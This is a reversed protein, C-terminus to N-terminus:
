WQLYSPTTTVVHPLTFDEAAVTLGYPALATSLSQKTLELDDYSEVGETLEFPAKFGMIAAVQEQSWALIDVSRTSINIDNGTDLRVQYVVVQTDAGLRHIRSIAQEHIYARYPADLMIMTDAMVLPVATSLSKYTALLPNLDENTEFERIIGALENNTKGYVALPNFGEATLRGHMTELAEVFSTFVVTKKTTSDCVGRFDVYPVMAVHCEIRKRGLVRGLAEGQIKLHVYKIISRIDKFQQAHWSPLSPILTQLEYRNVRKIEEAVFRPDGSKIVRQLDTHYDAFAAKQAGSKLGDRHLDMCENFLREDDKRRAKYYKAREEIFAKMDRRIATLTFDKGNPITVVMEKFIPESLKVEKKEVKFSVLGLRHRLIDVGKNGDRGFIKRFRQEVDDTFYPDITRLLPISEAGLAKIPTGSAWITNQSELRDCLEIFRQSRLSSSENLNHSEDLIVCVREGKLQDVIQLALDLLEYHFIAVREGAYPKGSMALWYTPPDRFLSTMAAEWVRQVANKPCVVVVRDAELCEAVTLSTYTKGSGAAAALLNGKLNYRDLNASYAKLYNEQYDLPTLTMKKLHNFNLRQGAPGQTQKLWTHELLLEKIKTLTRINTYRSRHTTMTELMYMVDPAFFLPFALQNRGLTTFMHQNIRSTKWIKAIDRAMVDAPIGSIVIEKPTQVVKINGLLRRVSAFM